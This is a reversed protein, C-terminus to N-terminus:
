LATPSPPAVLDDIDVDFRDFAEKSISKVERQGAATWYIHDEDGADSGFSCDLLVAGASDRFVVRLRPNDLGYDSLAGPSDIIETAREFELAGLMASVDGFDLAVGESTFWDDGELRLGIADGAGGAAVTDAADAARVIEIAAVRSRDYAVVTKDRWDLLPATALNVIEDDIIFIPDRSADRAYYEAVDGSVQAGVLLEHGVDNDGTQLVIRLSPSDLGTDSDTIDEPAFDSARAFDIAGLLTSAQGQDARTVLPDVLAWNTDSRELGLEREGSIMISEIQDQDFFLLTRDRLDSAEKRFLGAWSTAALFVEDSSALKLYHFTGRPNESGFLIEESRGDAFRVGLRLEPEALGYQSLDTPESTVSEDRAIRGVNGAVTDWGGSDAEFGAPAIFTWGGESRAASISRDPNDPVDPDHPYIIRIEVIDEDDTPLVLAAAEEAQGREERGRIDTWYVWGGLILLMVFLATTGKFKM